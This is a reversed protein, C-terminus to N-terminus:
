FSPASAAKSHPEFSDPFHQPIVGLQADRAFAAGIDYLAQANTGVAMDRLSLLRSETVNIGVGALPKVDLVANYRVYSLHPGGSLLDNELAGVEGDIQRATPSKSLYQLILENQESADQMFLDPIRSAWYVNESKLIERSLLSQKWRGTGVSVILLQDAGSTWNFQFGKLTAVLFLQLSPNNAM